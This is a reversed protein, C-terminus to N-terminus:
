NFNDIGKHQQNITSVVISLFILSGRNPWYGKGTIKKIRRGSREFVYLKLLFKM